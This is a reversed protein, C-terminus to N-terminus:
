HCRRNLIWDASGLISFNRYCPVSLKNQENYTCSWWMDFHCFFLCEVIYSRGIGIDFYPIRIRKGMEMWYRARCRHGSLIQKKSLTFYQCCKTFEVLIPNTSMRTPIKTNSFYKRVRERGFPNLNKFPLVTHSKKRTNRKESLETISMTVDIVNLNGLKSSTLNKPSTDSEM